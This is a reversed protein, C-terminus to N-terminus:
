HGAGGSLILKERGAGSGYAMSQSSAVAAPSPCSGGLSALMAEPPLRLWRCRCSRRHYCPGGVDVPGRVYECVGVSEHGETAAYVIPRIM